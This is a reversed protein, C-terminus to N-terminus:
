AANESFTMLYDRYHEYQARRLSIEAPLGVSPDNMLADFKDLIAVIRDQEERSPVPITVKGLGTGSIRNVKARNVYKRKEAHFRRTQLYYSVFKPNLPSRFAWCDDHFAVDEEGLWAVAKAVEDVTEGVGAIIVDGTRAFRLRSAMDPRVRSLPQNASVGYGTYIEGYHISALGDPVVDAKTIRKGRTFSGVQSMPRRPVAKEDDFSFLSDRYYDFQIQRAEREARLEADLAQFLDLVRVVEQQVAVPPVPVRYKLISAKDGRPMKGGKSHRVSYAIFRESALLFYLFRPLMVERAQPLLSITLVDPSAGGERDAHWVKKLYPRINGVLVDGPNFRIAGGANVVYDSDKRGGFDPLLSDVTVYTTSTLVSPDARTSAIHALDGLTKFEVGGPELQEVHENARSM